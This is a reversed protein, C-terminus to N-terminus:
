QSKEFKARLDDIEKYTRPITNWKKEDTTSLVRKVITNHIEDYDEKTYDSSEDIWTLFEEVKDEVSKKEEEDFKDKFKENNLTAGDKEIFPNEDVHKEIKKILEFRSLQLLDISKKLSPTLKVNQKQKLNKSLAIAWSPTLLSAQFFSFSIDPSISVLTFLFLLIM